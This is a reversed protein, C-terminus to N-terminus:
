TDSVLSQAQEHSGSWYYRWKSAPTERDERVGNTGRWQGKWRDLMSQRENRMNRKYLMIIIFVPVLAASLHKLTHGSALFQTWRYFKMDNAEFIKALLYFGAAWLWYSSHSYRPPLAITMAPIAVCPVFQVLAYLRLDNAFWWYAVSVVGAGLLPAISARGTLEDIREIIFVAMVSTFAITMPLRDWVLRNDNPKLHYYASGFATAAVGFFFATWGWLEGKLSLGFTNDHLTFVLGIVGIILFPFNSVVNLTNPIGFFNRRDAFNHYSQDQPIKPTVVMLVVFVFLAVGWWIVKQDRSSIPM